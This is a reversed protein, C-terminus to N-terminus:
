NVSEIDEEGKDLQETEWELFRFSKLKYARFEFLTEKRIVIGEEPVQNKCMFCDKELYKEELKKVFEEHWHNETDLEPFLDKARGKYFVYVYELGFRQCFEEVQHSSLDSVIGDENTFTIRYVQLRKKGQECGYDYKSQIPSGSETYGLAEGYLTYGKPIFEKVDEKIKGWIDEDYFDQKGQTEFENKVVKRSGYIYDYEMEKIPIGLFRLIRPLVGLKSKTLVHAVWWSTGHTKYTVTIWDMPNLEFASKRFNETDVHLHVQGEVLRSIRPKKGQRSDRPEKRFVVYKELVKEEGITDFEEGIYSHLNVKAYDEIISLPILYGMSKEGRLRVARVRCNDEFFGAVEPDKNLEKHRFSNTFSLLKANIKCELPFFAYCDGDKANMGVIVNQFDITAVQLRDANAHKRLDKLEVIKALYNPNANESISIVNTHSTKKFAEFM